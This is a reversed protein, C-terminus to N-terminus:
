RIYYKELKVILFVGKQRAKEKFMDKMLAKDIKWTGIIYISGNPKLVRFCEKEIKEWQSVVHSLANYLFVADFTENKYEMAAANMIQFHINTGKFSTLKSDNIDICSVSRAFDSASNSFEATGCATELIDKNKIESLLIKVASDTRKM